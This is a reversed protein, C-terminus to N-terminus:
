TSQAPAIFVLADALAYFATESWEWNVAFQCNLRQFGNFFRSYRLVVFAAHFPERRMSLADFSLLPVGFLM